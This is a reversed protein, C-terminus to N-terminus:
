FIHTIAAELIAFFHTVRQHASAINFQSSRRLRRAWFFLCAAFWVVGCGGDGDGGGDDSGEHGSNGVDRGEIM